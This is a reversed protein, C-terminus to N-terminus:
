AGSRPHEGSKIRSVSDMWDEWTLVDAPGRDAELGTGDILTLLDGDARQAFRWIFDSMVLFAERPSLSENEVGHKGFSLGASEEIPFHRSWGEWEPEQAQEQERERAKVGIARGSETAELWVIEGFTSFPDVRGFWEEAIRM